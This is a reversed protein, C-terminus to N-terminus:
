DGLSIESEEWYGEKEEKDEPENKGCTPCFDSTKPVTNSSCGPCSKFNETFNSNKIKEHCSGDACRGFNLGKPMLDSLENHSFKKEPEPVHEKLIQNTGPGLNEISPEPVTEVTPVSEPIDIEFTHTKECEIGDCDKVGKPITIRKKAM